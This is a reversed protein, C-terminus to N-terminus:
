EPAHEAVAGIGGAACLLGGGEGLASRRRGSSVEALRRRMGDHRAILPPPMPRSESPRRDDPRAEPPWLTGGGFAVHTMPRACM